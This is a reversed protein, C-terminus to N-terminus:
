PEGYAHIIEEIANQLEQLSHARSRSCAHADEACILCRRAPLGLTKRSIAGRLPDIVDLDWLRGLPHEEELRTMAQKLELSGAVVVLLAEPGTPDYRVEWNLVEWSRDAMAAMLASLAHTMVKRASPSDKVPGPNVITVSVLPRGFFELAERQLQVRRERNRLVEELTVEATATTV